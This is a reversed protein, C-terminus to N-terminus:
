EGDTAAALMSALSARVDAQFEREAARDAGEALSLPYGIELEITGRKPVTEGRPLLRAAGRIALPVLPVGSKTALLFGGRKFEGLVGDESRTGEPFIVVSEGRERIDEAGREISKMADRADSRRIMIFPSFRLSWGWIPVKTLEEKYVFLAGGPLASGIAIIDLYSAHNAIFVYPRGVEIREAGEVEVRIGLIKLLLRSWSKMLRHYGRNGRDFPRSVAAALSYPITVIILLLLRLM